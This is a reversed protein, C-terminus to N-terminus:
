FGAPARPLDQLFVFLQRLVNDAPMFHNPIKFRMGQLSSLDKSLFGCFLWLATRLRIADAGPLANHKMAVIPTVELGRRTPTVSLCLMSHRRGLRSQVTFMSGGWCTISVRVHDNSLWKTFRDSIGGGTVRSIYRLRIRHPSPFEMVPPERLARDHVANLHQIDFANSLVAIPPCDILVTKGVATRLAEAPEEEFFPLEGLAHEGHFVFVCGFREAVPFARQRVNLADASCHGNGDFTRHHLPCRLCEGRVEGGALNAGMHACHADLANLTGSETRFLVIPQGLFERAVVKGRPIESSRCLLFWSRPLVKLDFLEQLATRNLATEAPTPQLQELSVHRDMLTM